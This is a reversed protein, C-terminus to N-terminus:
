RASSASSFDYVTTNTFEHMSTLLMRQSIFKPVRDAPDSWWPHSEVLVVENFHHDALAAILPTLDADSQVRRMTKPPDIAFFGSPLGLLNPSPSYDGNRSYYDYMLEGENAAFVVLRRNSSDGAVSQSIERWPETHEGLWVPVISRISLVVLTIVALCCVTRRWRFTQLTMPLVILLPAFLTTPLFIREIFIPTSIRSLIFILLVPIFGGIALALATRRITPAFLAILLIDILALDLLIFTTPEAAHENVGCLISITRALDRGTPPSPWFNRHIAHMQALTAPLWPLYAIAAIATVICLDILRRRLPVAGPLILWALGMAALYVAMTNAIYLSAIWAVALLTLRWRTSRETLLLVLYFDIAVLLLMLTYFRAEHAYSIAMFSVSALSMAAAIAWRDRLLRGAIGFFVLLAASSALASLSRMAAESHGFVGVWGRLLLYYLPPSTDVRIVRVIQAPSLSVVWATYGEDFWLSMKGLQSFRLVIGVLIAILIIAASINKALLKESPEM